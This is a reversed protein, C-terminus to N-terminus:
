DRFPVKMGNHIEHTLREAKSHPQRRWQFARIATTPDAQLCWVTCVM